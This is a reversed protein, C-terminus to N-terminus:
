LKEIIELCNEYVYEPKITKMCNFNNIPCKKTGHIACPRCNMNSNEIIRDKKGIPYFGFDASTPGYITITPCKALGSFHTPASDNTIVLKSQTMLYITQPISLEAALNISNSKTAIDECLEFDSKAGIVICNYGKNNLLNALEIFYEKLWRKTNWVSAPALIINKKNNLKNNTKINNIKDIDISNFNIPLEWLNKKISNYNFDSFVSLLSINRLIEHLHYEYKVINSYLFSMANREFGVSYNPKSYYSLLTTRFSRHPAIILDTNNQKIKNAIHKIGDLGKNILHKDYEIVTNIDTSLCPIEKAQPTTVFCINANPNITKILNILPLTLVVDGLFATQIVAIKKYNNLLLEKNKM